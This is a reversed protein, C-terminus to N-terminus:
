DNSRSSGGIIGYRYLYYVLTLIASITAAVYTMAAANLVRGVEREENSSVIGQSLLIARARNSADFEVPLNVLQFLVILSFAGIGLLILNFSNLTAGLIMLFFSANSGISALPVIGNRIVLPTYRSADQIAHGVEHAAVGLASITRGDYVDPSLRLMKAKPDYHDGLFGQVREIGVNKIHNADLIRQAVQAGSLGCHAPIKNGNNFASKVKFQAWLGFLMAPGLFLFYVPDFGIM